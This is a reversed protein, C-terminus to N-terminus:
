ESQMFYKGAANNQKDNPIPQPSERGVAGVGAGAGAGVGGGGVAGSILPLYKPPGSQISCTNRVLSLKWIENLQPPLM